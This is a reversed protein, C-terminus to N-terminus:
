YDGKYRGGQLHYSVGVAQKHSFVFAVFGFFSPAM